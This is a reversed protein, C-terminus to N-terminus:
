RTVLWGPEEQGLWHTPEVARGCQPCLVAEQRIAHSCHPCPRRQRRDAARRWVYGVAALVAFLLSLLVIIVLMFVPALAVLLLVAPVGGTEVWKYFGSVGLDGLWTLVRGRVWTLGQNLALAFGVALAQVMFSENSASATHIAAIARSGEPGSQAMVEPPVSAGVGLLLLSCLLTSVFAIARDAYIERLFEEIDDDSLVVVNEIVAAAFVIGLAWWDLLAAYKADFRVWDFHVSLAIGGQVMLLATIPRASSGFAAGALRAILESTM